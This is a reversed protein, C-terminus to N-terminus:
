AADHFIVGLAMRRGSTITSVGHRMKARYVGRTGEVPRDNVAFAVADGLELRVVHARSQMRPRQETLVLEGGEFDKGPASLQIAIQIPFVEDGYLDQHLRNYDGQRYSLILPTPRKQGAEACRARFACHDSPFNAEGVLAARWRNAIPVLPNFLSERLNGIIDPLPDAFYKYEGSGFGFNKMEV